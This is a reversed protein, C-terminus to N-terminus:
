QIIEKLRGPNEYQSTLMMELILDLGKEVKPLMTKTGFSFMPYFVEMSDKGSLPSFGTGIGGTHIDIESTLDVYTYNKTDVRGLVDSLLAAYPILENPLSQADFFVSLYAIKNTEVDHHLFTTGELEFIELPFEEAKPDIDSRQLTPIKAVDEPSDPSAQRQLLKEQAAIIAEIQKPSLSAKIEALKERLKEENEKDLGPRPKMVITARFRNDLLNKQILKEFYRNPVEDRIKKLIPEFRLYMLPDAGYTWSDLMQMNVALGKPFGSIQFERLSFETRNIAGEILRPDMGEEVLNELTKQVLNVFEEKRDPNSNKVIVSFCPQLISNDWSGEVDMGIGAELLARRLPSAQSDVLVYSLLNMAFHMEADPSDGILYNLTLFTKDETSDGPDVSYEELFEKPETFAPQLVIGADVPQKEFRSLYERDLFELHKGIDGNGYLYILSNSPHYYKKHFAVFQEQTLEPIADPDGGSEKGYTGEPYLCKGLTRYLKGSPSSFVGKMENYVIGNYILEGSSEDIEYHWGEQMLIEPVGVLRPFFVADLYVHMLNM